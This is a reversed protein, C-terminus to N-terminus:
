GSVCHTCSIECCCRAACRAACRDACHAAPLRIAATDDFPAAFSCCIAVSHASLTLALDDVIWESKKNYHRSKTMSRRLATLANDRELKSAAKGSTENLTTQRLTEFLEALRERHIHLRGEASLLLKRLARTVEPPVSGSDGLCKVFLTAASAIADIESSASVGKPFLRAVAAKLGTLQTLPADM